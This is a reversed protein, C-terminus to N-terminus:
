ARQVEAHSQAISGAIVGGASLGMVIISDGLGRAIAMTSDGFRALEEARVKGLSRVPARREGHHPLRPLYVNDGGAFLHAGVIAFQDPLDSFGHLLVFVRPTRTGHTLLVSRGRSVVVSDDEAQRRAVMASASDYSAPPPLPAPATDAPGRVCGFLAAAIVLITMGLAALSRSRAASSASRRYPTALAARKSRSTEGRPTPARAGCARSWILKQSRWRASGEDRQEEPHCNSSSGACISM